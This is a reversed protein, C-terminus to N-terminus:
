RRRGRPPTSPPPPRRCPIRSATSSRRTAATGSRTCPTSAAALDWVKLEKPVVIFACRTGTFGANKSFSRFEIACERAGPIEFISQPLQPDRIFSVYAADFVILAKHARAYDVWQQLQAKTATAGTPNNPFCLYILDVPQSPLAPVYGNAATSELYVFGAYRDNDNSGTRGAM